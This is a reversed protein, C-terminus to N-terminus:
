LMCCDSEPIHTSMASMIGPIYENNPAYQVFQFMAKAGKKWPLDRFFFPHEKLMEWKQAKTWTARHDWTAGTRRAYDEDFAALVGDMDFLVRKLKRM